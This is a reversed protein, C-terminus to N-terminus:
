DYPSIAYNVEVDLVGRGCCTPLKDDLWNLIQERLNPKDSPSARACVSILIRKLNSYNQRAFIRNMAVWDLRDLDNVDAIAITMVVEEIRPSSVM